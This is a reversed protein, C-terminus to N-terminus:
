DGPWPPGAWKEFQSGPEGPDFCCYNWALGIAEIIVTRTGESTRWWHDANYQRSPASIVGIETADGFAIRYLRRTRRAHPGLTVVDMRPPTERRAALQDRLMVASLFTRNQASPPSPVAEIVGADIGRKELALRAADAWSQAGTILSDPGIAGGTTVVREYAGTAYRAAAEDFVPTGAWGEVVLLGGGVPDTPALFPYLARAVGFGATLALAAVVLWGALTPVPLERRRVLRIRM